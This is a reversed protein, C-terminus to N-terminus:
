LPPFQGLKCILDYVSDGGVLTAVNVVSNELRTRDIFQWLLEPDKPCAAVMRADRLGMM